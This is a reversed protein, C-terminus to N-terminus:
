PSCATSGPGDPLGVQIEGEVVRVPLRRAAPHPTPMTAAGTRPDFRFGHWPCALEGAVLRGGALPGGRHPCTNDLASIAGDASRVLAVVGAPCRAATVSNPALDDVRGIGVWRTDTTIELV